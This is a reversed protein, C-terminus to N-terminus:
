GQIGHRRDGRTTAFPSDRDVRVGDLARAAVFDVDFPEADVKKRQGSVLNVSRPSRPREVNAPSKPEEGPGGASALLSPEARPGLVRGRDDPAPHGGPDGAFPALAVRPLRPAEAIPELAPDELAHG